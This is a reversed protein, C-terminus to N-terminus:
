ANTKLLIILSILFFIPIILLGQRIDSSTSIVLGILFPGLISCINGFMSYVCFASLQNKSELRKAIVSRSAAQIPGIFFGIMLSLIWFLLTDNTFYLTLTILMLLTICLMVIKESGFNDEIKGLFLCGAIGAMNIFVGLKLIEEESFGFLFSAILSAFAFICIVSNNFFFYSILFGSMKKEKINKLFLFLNDIKFIKNKYNDIHKFGFILTWLGVFPGILLFISQGFLKYDNLQTLNLLTLVAILSLLGGFYGTAWGLNSILGRKKKEAVNHLSLNYFLNLIEFAVLSFAVLILPFYENSAKDFFYLASVSLILLYFSLRFFSIGLTHKTNRKLLLISFVLFSLVSGISITYGWNSTGIEPTLAIEKAYFAGYIFTIILTPYSSIGFDFLCWDKVKKIKLEKLM